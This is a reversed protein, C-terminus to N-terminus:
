KRSSGFRKLSSIASTTLVLSSAQSPSRRALCAALSSTSARSATGDLQHVDVERVDWEPRNLRLTECADPDIEVALTHEFGALELGLSQGGAGACIEVCTLM